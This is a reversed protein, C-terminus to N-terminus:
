CISVMSLLKPRKKMFKNSAPRKVRKEDQVFSFGRRNVCIIWLWILLTLVYRMLSNVYCVKLGFYGTFYRANIANQEPRCVLGIFSARM